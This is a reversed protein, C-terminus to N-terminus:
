PTSRASSARPPAREGARNVTEVMALRGDSLGFTPLARM